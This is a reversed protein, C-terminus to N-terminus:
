LAYTRYPNRCPPGACVHVRMEDLDCVMSAVTISRDPPPATEPHACISDPGAAHDRLTRTVVALPDDGRAVGERLSEEARALRDRSEGAWYGEFRKMHDHTYHNTHATVLAGEPLGGHPAGHAGCLAAAGASTELDQIAGTRDGWLHNSGRARAPLVARSRAEDLTPAELAWRRVFANPVGLRADASYVSNGVYAIGHSSLGLIPLYPVGAITLFRTGDPCTVDFLVNKDVDVSYWDM